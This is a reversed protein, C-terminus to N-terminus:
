YADAQCDCEFLELEILIAVSSKATGQTGLDIRGFTYDSRSPSVLTFEDTNDNYTARFGNDKATALSLINAAAGTALPM